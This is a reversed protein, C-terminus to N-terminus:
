FRGVNELDQWYSLELREGSRHLSSHATAIHEVHAVALGLTWGLGMRVSRPCVQFYLTGFNLKEQKGSRSFDPKWISTSHFSLPFSKTPCIKSWIRHYRYEILYASDFKEFTRFASEVGTLIQKITKHYTYNKYINYLLTTYRNVIFAIRLQTCAHLTWKLCYFYTHIAYVHDYWWNLNEFNINKTVCM